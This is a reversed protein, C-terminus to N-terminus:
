LGAFIDDILAQPTEITDESPCVVMTVRLRIYEGRIFVRTGNGVEMLFETFERAERAQM